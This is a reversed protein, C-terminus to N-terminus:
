RQVDLVALIERLTAASFGDPISIRITNNVTIKIQRTEGPLEKIIAPFIEHFQVNENEIRRKWPNFSWYSINNQRCYERQNLGSANQAKVHAQWFSWGKTSSRTNKM